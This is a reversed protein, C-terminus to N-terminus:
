ESTSTIRNMRKEIDVFDSSKLAQQYGSSLKGGSVDWIYMFVRWKRTIKLQHCILNALVCAEQWTCLPQYEEDLVGAKKAKKLLQWLEETRYKYTPPVRKLCEPMSSGSRVSNPEESQLLLELQRVLEHSREVMALLQNELALAEELASKIVNKEM